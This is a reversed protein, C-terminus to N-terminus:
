GLTLNALPKNNLPVQSSLSQLALIEGMHVDRFGRVRLIGIRGWDKGVTLHAKTPRTPKDDSDGRSDNVIFLEGSLRYDVAWSPGKWCAESGSDHDTSGLM